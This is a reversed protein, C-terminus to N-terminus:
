LNCIQCISPYHGGRYRIWRCKGCTECEAWVVREDGSIDIECPMRTDGIRPANREAVVM